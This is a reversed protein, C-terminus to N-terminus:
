QVPNVQSSNIQTRPLPSRRFFSLITLLLGYQVWASALSAYQDQFFQMFLPYSLLSFAVIWIPHGNTARRYAVGHFVGFVFQALLAGVLGFDLWYPHYITYVNIEVPISIWEQVLPTVKVDELGVAKIFAYFSRFIYEGTTLPPDQRVVIDFAAIPGLAYVEFSEILSVLNESLSFAVSGGKGLVIGLTAFAVLGLGLIVGAGTLPRIRNTIVLISATVLIIVFLFTRGTGLVAYTLAVLTSAVIEVISVHRSFLVNFAFAVVSVPMLYAWVGFTEGEETMAVRINLYLNETFGLDAFSVAKAIYFPLGVIALLQLARVMRLLFRDPVLTITRMLRPRLTLTAFWSGAGFFIVGLLVALEVELSLPPFNSSRLSHATLVIAWIGAQGVPPYLPDRFRLYAVGLSIWLIGIVFATSLAM